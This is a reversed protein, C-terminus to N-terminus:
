KFHFSDIIKKFEETQKDFDSDVSSALLFFTKGKNPVASLQHRFKQQSSTDTFAYVFVYGAKNDVKTSNTSVLVFNPANRKVDDLTNSKLENDNKPTSSAVKIRFTAALATVRGIGSDAGAQELTEKKMEFWGSPVEYKYDAKEVFTGLPSNTAQSDAAPQNSQGTQANAPQNTQTAPTSNKQDPGLFVFWGAVLLGAVAAAVVVRTKNNRLRMM